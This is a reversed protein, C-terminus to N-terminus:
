APQLQVTPVAPTEKAEVPVVPLTVTFTSGKGPESDVRVTGNMAKVLHQVIPLGLGTGGYPRKFSNDVQRFSEFIHNHMHAPIGIGTDRVIIYWQRDTYKTELAVEGEDTFKFANSLLNTGIKTVASEDIMIEDPLRPDITVTFKLDKQKALVEMQTQWRGVLERPSVPSPVLEMRGAEIKSLDLIDNILILLREANARTRQLMHANREDLKGSMNMIGLFGIIANLPTRLEHSMVALFQDKFQSTEKAAAEAALAARTKDEAARQARVFRYISYAAIIVFGVLLLLVVTLAALLNQTSQNFNDLTFGRISQYRVDTQFVLLSFDSLVQALEARVAEDDPDAIWQAGLDQISDWMPIMEDINDKIDQPFVAQVTPWFVVEWRSALVDLEQQFHDADFDDPNSAVYVLSQMAEHELQSFPRNATSFNFGTALRNAEIQRLMTGVLAIVAVLLLVGVIGLITITPSLFVFRRAGQPRAPTLTSASATM